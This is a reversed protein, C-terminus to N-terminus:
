REEKGARYGHLAVYAFEALPLPRGSAWAAAGASAAWSSAAAWATAARAWSAAAAYASTRAAAWAASAWAPETRDRGSLWGEAWHVFGPEHYVWLANLIGFEACQERTPLTFPLEKLIRMETAGFKGDLGDLRKGRYEADWVIADAPLINAHAANMLLAVEVTDYGHLYASSCLPGDGSATRWEGPTWLYGNYTTRDRRTLKICANM